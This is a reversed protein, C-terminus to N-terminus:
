KEHILTTILLLLLPDTAKVKGQLHGLRSLAPNCQTHLPNAARGEWEGLDWQSIRIEESCVASVKSKACSVNGIAPQPAIQNIQLSLWSPPEPEKRKALHGRQPLLARPTCPGALHNFIESVEFAHSSGSVIFCFIIFM